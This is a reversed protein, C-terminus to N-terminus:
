RWGSKRAIRDRASASRSQWATVGQGVWIIIVVRDGVDGGGVGGYKVQVGLKSLRRRLEVGSQTASRQGSARSAVVGVVGIRRAGILVRREDRAYGGRRGGSLDIAGDILRTQGVAQRRQRERGRRAFEGVSLSVGSRDQKGRDIAAACGLSLCERLGNASRENGVERRRRDVLDDHIGLRVSEGREVARLKAVPGTDVKVVRGAVEVVNGGAEGAREYGGGAVLERGNGDGAAADEAARAGDIAVEGNLTAARKACM